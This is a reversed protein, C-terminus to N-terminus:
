LPHANPDGTTMVTYLFWVLDLALIVAAGKLINQYGLLVVSRPRAHSLWLPLSRSLWLALFLFFTVNLEICVARLARGM